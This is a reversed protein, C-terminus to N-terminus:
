LIPSGSLATVLNFVGSVFLAGMLAFRAQNRTNAQHSYQIALQGLFSVLAVSFVVLWSYGNLELVLINFFAMPAWAYTEAVHAFLSVPETRPERATVRTDKNNTAASPSSKPLESSRRVIARMIMLTLVGFYLSTVPIPSHSLSSIPGAMPHDQGELYTYVSKWFDRPTRKSESARKIADSIVSYDSDTASKIKKTAANFSDQVGEKANEAKKYLADYITNAIDEADRGSKQGKTMKRVFDHIPDKPDVMRNNASPTYLKSKFRSWSRAFDDRANKLRSPILYSLSFYADEAKTEVQDPIGKLKDASGCALRRAKDTIGDEGYLCDQYSSAMGDKADQTFEEFTGAVDNMADGAKGAQDKAVGKAHQLYDAAADYGKRVTDRIGASNAKAAETATALNDKAANALSEGKDAFFSTATVVNDAATRVGRQAKEAIGEYFAEVGEKLYEGGEVVGEGFEHLGESMREKSDRKLFDKKAQHAAMKERHGPTE